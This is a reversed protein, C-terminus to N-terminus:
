YSITRRGDSLQVNEDLLQHRFFYLDKSLVRVSQLVNDTHLIHAKPTQTAVHMRTHM